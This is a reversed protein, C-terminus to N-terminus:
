QVHHVVHKLHKSTLETVTWKVAQGKTLANSLAKARASAEDAKRLRAVVDLPLRPDFSPRYTPGALEWKEEM